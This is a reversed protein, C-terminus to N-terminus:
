SSACAHEAKREHACQWAHAANEHMRARSHMHPREGMRTRDHMHPMKMCARGATYTRGKVWARETMCTRRKMQARGTMRTRCKTWPRITGGCGHACSAQEFTKPRRLAARAEGCICCLRATPAM